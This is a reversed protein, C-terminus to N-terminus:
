IRTIQKQQQLKKKNEIQWKLADVPKMRSFDPPSDADRTGTWARQRKSLKQSAKAKQVSGVVEAAIEELDNEDFDPNAKLLNSLEFVLPDRPPIDSKHKRLANYSAKQLEVEEALEGIREMLDEETEVTKSLVPHTLIHQGFEFIKTEPLGTEQMLEQKLEAIRNLQESESLREEHDKLQRELQYAKRANPEMHAVTQAQKALDALFENFDADPDIKQIAGFMRQLAGLPDDKAVKSFEKFPESLAKREEAVQRLRNRVAVGGAAADRMEKLTMKVPRKDAVFEFEADDDVDWKTEGKQFQFASGKEKAKYPARGEGESGGGMEEGSDSTQRVHVEATEPQSFADRSEREKQARQEQRKLLIQERLSHVASEQEPTNQVAATM